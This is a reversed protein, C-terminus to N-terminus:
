NLSDLTIGETLRSTLNDIRHERLEPLRETVLYADNVVELATLTRDFIEKLTLEAPSHVVGGNERRNRHQNDVAAFFAVRDEEHVMGIYSFGLLSDNVQQLDVVGKGSLLKVANQWAQYDETGDIKEPVIFLKKSEARASNVVKYQYDAHLGIEIGVEVNPFKIGKMWVFPTQTSTNFAATIEETGITRGVDGLFAMVKDADTKRLAYTGLEFGFENFTYPIAKDKSSASLHKLFQSYGPLFPREFANRTDQQLQFQIQSLDMYKYLHM